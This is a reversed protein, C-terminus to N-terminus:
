PLRARAPWMPGSGRPTATASADDGSSKILFVATCPGDCFPCARAHLLPLSEFRSIQLFFFAAVQLFNRGKRNKSRLHPPRTLLALSSSQSNDKVPSRNRNSPM